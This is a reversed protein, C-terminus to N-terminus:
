CAEREEYRVDDNYWIGIWWKRVSDALLENRIPKENLLDGMDISEVLRGGEWVFVTLNRKTKFFTLSKDCHRQTYHALDKLM